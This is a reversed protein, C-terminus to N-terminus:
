AVQAVSHASRNAPKPLVEGAVKMLELKRETEETKGAIWSIANSLRWTSNGAPLNYTDPSNYADIVADAESKLLLKKLTEKASAPDVATANAARITDMRSHLSEANLQSGIVDRLASVTTEADLEYTRQSYIMSEDLRRGLHVQRMEEQTIALNSCWIRLLYARVSLAGNGFDSNELSLGYAVLEGPVPEYVEPMIAQIAVKTDTVYGNYPLAGKKQVETAFAEIIPRSDLRRYRDSLFGRVEGHISRLLYRQKWFRNAFVTRLNHALLEKAWLNPTNLLGDMFKIPLDTTQAMQQVANRHLKLRIAGVMSDAFSVQVSHDEAVDFSLSAGSQLRDAPQINMVHDIVEGAKVRGHNILQELKHAAATKSEMTLLM